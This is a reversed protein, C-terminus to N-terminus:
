TISNSTKKQIDSWPGLSKRFKEYSTYIKAAGPASAALDAVVRRSIERLHSLVDDPLKRLQVKHKDILRTLAPGNEAEFRSVTWNNIYGAVARIIEQLDHPLEDWAKKNILLELVTGPEQWSPYYYYKAARYLGMREDLFPNTWETADITGRELATYLEAGPMLVVNAGAESMVKGGIGPIRIKLGKLDSISKIEKKFWGAMQFGTNGLPLPVLNLPAYLETWLKLGDGSYLWANQQQVTMGFPMASFFQAAPVKGAWYYSAGVGMQITGGSVADFTELPPILEGGAFVKIKLRDGSAANVMKSFFEAADQLVPLRPAWATAMKWRSNGKAHSEKPNLLPSAVAGAALGQVFKRRQM